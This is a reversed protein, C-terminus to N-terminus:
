METVFQHMTPYKGPANHSKHSPDIVVMPSFASNSLASTMIHVWIACNIPGVHPGGPGQRDWIPGMNAGMFRAILPFVEWM